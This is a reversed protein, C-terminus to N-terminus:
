CLILGCHYVPYMDTCRIFELAKAANACILAVIIIVIWTMSVYSNRHHPQLWVSRPWLLLCSVHWWGCSNRHNPQMWVLYPLLLFCSVHWWVMHMNITQSCECWALGRHAPYMAGFWTVELTKAANVCFLAVIIFLICTLLFMHNGITQCCECQVLGYYHVPYM